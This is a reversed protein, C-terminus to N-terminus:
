KAFKYIQALVNEIGKSKMDAIAADVDAEAEPEAEDAPLDAEMPLEEESPVDDLSLEVEEPLAEDEFEAEDAPAETHVPRQQYCADTHEHLGCILAGEADFCEEAHVHDYDYGCMPIRELTDAFLKLSNMTVLLVVACLLALGRRLMARRSNRRIIREIKQNNRRDM